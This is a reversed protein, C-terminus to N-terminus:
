GEECCQQQLDLLTPAALVAAPDFGNRAFELPTQAALQGRGGEGLLCLALARVVPHVAEGAAAQILLARAASASPAAGGAAAAASLLHLAQM